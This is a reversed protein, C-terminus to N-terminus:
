NRRLSDEVVWKIMMDLNAQGGVFGNMSQGASSKVILSSNADGAIANPTGDSGNGLIGEYTSMDYSGAQSTADHCGSTACSGDFYPKLDADYTLVTPTVGGTISVDRAESCGLVVVLLLIFIWSIFWRIVSKM